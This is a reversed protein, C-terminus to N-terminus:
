KPVVQVSSLVGVGNRCVVGAKKTGELIGEDWGGYM